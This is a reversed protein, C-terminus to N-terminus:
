AGCRARRPRGGRARDRADDLGSQRGLPDVFAVYRVTEEPALERRGQVVVAQVADPDIFAEVDRRFQVRGDRGYESVAAVPTTRLPRGLSTSLSGPNMSRTDANWVLVRPDDRGFSREVARHLEGKAAYPSSLGLLLADPVTAMGPRLAQLVETDPNAAGDDTRWFAVEDAVTGVVTYGRVSRYSATHVEINVGCNLEISDRLTRHLYGCLPYVESMGKLYGLVQRAQRRDAAIIPIM